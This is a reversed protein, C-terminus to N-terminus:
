DAQTPRRSAALTGLLTLAEASASGPEAGYVVLEQGPASRVDFTQMSLVIRGVDPHQFTKTDLSKGRADHRSWLARFEASSEILEGLVTRIRPDEPATGYNLRFGAVSNKAVDDWDVYFSRARPSNFVVMLLNRSFTFDGFLADALENSALVDYARNYVLAPQRHWSDMLQLLRPDVREATAARPAPSLGALHFLHRRGDDDLRLVAGLANLVQPSPRTERGQELRTYYDVSLGALMAVEERRLGPVRRLGTTPLNLQDPTVRARRSALYAGLQSDAMDGM